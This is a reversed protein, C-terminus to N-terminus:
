AGYNERFWRRHTKMSEPPIDYRESWVSSPPSGNPNSGYVNDLAADVENQRAEMKLTDRYYAGAHPGFLHPESKAARRRLRMYEQLLTCAQALYNTPRFQRGDLRRNLFRDLRRVLPRNLCRNLLMLTNLSPSYDLTFM